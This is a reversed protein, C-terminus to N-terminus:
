RYKCHYEIGATFGCLGQTSSCGASPWHNACYTSGSHFYEDNSAFSMSFGRAATSCSAKNNVDSGHSTILSESNTTPNYCTMAVRWKFWDHFVNGLTHSGVKTVFSGSPCRQTTTTVGCNSVAQIYDNWGCCPMVSRGYSEMYNKGTCSRLAWFRVCTGTNLVYSSAEDALNYGVAHCSFGHGSNSM